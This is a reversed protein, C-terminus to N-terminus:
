QRYRIHQKIELDNTIYGKERLGNLVESYIDSGEVDKITVILVFELEEIIEGSRSTMDIRLKWGDKVDLGNTIRRFYSKVPSWKFGNEVREKEFKDHWSRELPVQGKFKPSEGDSLEYTGFSVDINSRCYETGYNRNLKPSYVLSMCIEGFYKGNRILSTPYPFDFLELYTGEILRQKFVLTIENESSQLIDNANESPMGFGYYNINNQSVDLLERSNMRASHITLAKALLLDKEIMEDYVSAFKQVVRPNSYSTGVGEVINGQSDLGVVGLGSINHNNDINGGFDVVDPKVIYNAGPGRRSFPSPEHKKVLSNKSEKLALSGVTIARVSDAPAVIRDSVDINSKPPWSRLPPENLNGSSVFFQVKYEDQIYDLFIGLDSMSGQCVQQEIGLSLNWINVNGSYKNMVDEIIEMLEEEGISDTLGYEENGNPIAVIDVLKFRKNNETYINNLENGFIITSAVFTGHSPNQYEKAVYEERHLVYPALFENDSSIGSDIIGIITESNEISVENLIGDLDTPIKRNSPLSYEQFFDISKIGNIDAIKLIDDYSEVEVKIYKIDEGYQIIKLNKSFGLLDIKNKIYNIVQENDYDDDFDFWKIKIKSKVVEFQHQESIGSLGKSIKDQVTIPKVDSIATMNARIKKSTPNQILSVTKEISTKTLKIYIEDLDESGIIPCNRCLDVPKHSKAIANPKMVIKGVAPINKNESFVDEYYELVDNFKDILKTQLESTVEGFFKNGGGGTNRKIDTQKQM